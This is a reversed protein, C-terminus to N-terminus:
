TNSLTGVGGRTGSWYRSAAMLVHGRPNMALPFANEGTLVLDSPVAKGECDLEQLGDMITSYDQERSM